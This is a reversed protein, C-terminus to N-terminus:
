AGAKAALRAPEGGGNVGHALPVAEGALFGSISAPTIEVKQRKRQVVPVIDPFREALAHVAAAAASESRTSAFLDWLRDCLRSVMAQTFEAVAKRKTKLTRRRAYYGGFKFEGVARDIARDLVVYLYVAIQPGPEHGVFTRQTQGTEDYDLISATNTNLALHRWLRDRPSQGATRRRVSQQEIFLETRSIEYDRMLAAAKEAALLAEAETCGADVTKATLARIKAILKERDTM